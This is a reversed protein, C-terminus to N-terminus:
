RPSNTWLADRRLDVGRVAQLEAEHRSVLKEHLSPVYVAVQHWMAKLENTEDQLHSLEREQQILRMFLVGCVLWLIGLIVGLFTVM